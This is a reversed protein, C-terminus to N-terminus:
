RTERINIAPTCAPSPAGSCTVPVEFTVDPTGDGDLDAIARAVGDTPSNLVWQYQFYQPLSLSFKMASWGPDTWDGATSLYKKGSVQSLSGPVPATTPPLGAAASHSTVREASAAADRAIMVVTTKGEAEKAAQLYRRVGHIALAALIGIFIVVAVLAGVVIAIIVPANSKRAPAPPAGPAPPVANPTQQM